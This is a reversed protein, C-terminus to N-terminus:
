MDCAKGDQRRTSTQARRPYIVHARWSMFHDSLCGQLTHSPDCSSEALSMPLHTRARVLPIRAISICKFFSILSSSRTNCLIMSSNSLRIYLYLPLSHTLCTHLLVPPTHGLTACTCPLELPQLSHNDADLHAASAPGFTPCKIRSAASLRLGIM